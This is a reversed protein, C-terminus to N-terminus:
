LLMKVNKLYLILIIIILTKKKKFRGKRRRAEVPVRLELIHTPHSLILCADLQQHVKCFIQPFALIRRQNPSVWLPTASSEVSRLGWSPQWRGASFIYLNLSRTLNFLTKFIVNYPHPSFIHPPAYPCTATDTPRWVWEATSIHKKRVPLPTQSRRVSEPLLVSTCYDAKLLYCLPGGLHGDLIAAASDPSPVLLVRFM